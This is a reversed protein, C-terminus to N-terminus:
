VFLANDIIKGGSWVESITLAASPPRLRGCRIGYWGCVSVCPYFNGGTTYNCSSETHFPIPQPHNDLTMLLCCCSSPPFSPSMLPPPSPPPPPPLLLLLEVAKEVEMKKRGPRREPRKVATIKTDPRRLRKTKRRNSGIFTPALAM